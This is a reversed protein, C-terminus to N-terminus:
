RYDASVFGACWPNTSDGQYSIVKDDAPGM